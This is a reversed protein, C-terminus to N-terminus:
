SSPGCSATACTSTMATTSSTPTSWATPRAPRLSTAWPWPSAAGSPRSRTAWGSCCPPTSKRTGASPLEPGPRRGGAPAPGDGQRGAADLLPRKSTGIGRLVRLAGLAAIRAALPQDDDSSCSSCPRGSAQGAASWSASPASGTASTRAPCRTSCSRTRWSPSGPGATWPRAPAPRARGETGAWTVRYIRGHKGDGWLRGAGGSDTRWDCVYM